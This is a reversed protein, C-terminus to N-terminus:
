TGMAKWCEGGHQRGCKPCEPRGSSTRGEEATDRRRNSIDQREVTTADEPIVGVRAKGAARNRGQVTGLQIIWRAVVHVLEWLRGASEEMSDEVNLVSLGVVQPEVKRPQTGEGRGTVEQAATRAVGAATGATQAARQTAQATAQAPTIQGVSSNVLPTIAQTFALMQTGMAKVVDLVERMSPDAVQLAGTGRSPLDGAHSSEGEEECGLEHQEGLDTEDNVLGTQTPLVQTSNTVDEGLRDLHVLRRRERGLKLGRQEMHATSAAGHHYPRSSMRDKSEDMIPQRITNNESLQVRAFVGAMITQAKMMEVKEDNHHSGRWSPYQVKKKFVLPKRTDVDILLRGAELEITDVHGLKRGINKLNKVTWLHLPIGSIEVWFPIIWPYDDHVIPEWRVLVFMCFNYHFPGQKLVAQLNDESAFNFLFKGNGLDNATIRDQMKWQTPMYQILKEVNQKKLNLVKGILSMRYERITHADDEDFLQIPEDDEEYLIGKGKLDVMPTSRFRDSSGM